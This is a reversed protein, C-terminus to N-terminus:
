LDIDSVKLLYKQIKLLDGSNIMGDKNADAAKMVYQNSIPSVGLLHKQVKLLDGSNIVGDCNIDGYKIVHYTSGMILTGDTPVFDNDNILQVGNQNKVVCYPYNTTITKVKTAPTIYATTGEIKIKEPDVFNGINSNGNGMDVQNRYDPLQSGVFAIYENAVYGIKEEYNWKKNNADHTTARIIKVKSWNGEYGMHLAITDKYLNGLSAGDPTARFTVGWKKMSNIYILAYQSTASLSTPVPCASVPMNNYVPITFTLNNDLIGSEAYIDYLTGAQSAPDRVNTMYQHNYFQSSPYTRAGSSEKLIENGVVDFKYFYKTTQGQAIYEDALAIKAGGILATRPNNWGLERARILGREVAGDGDSAGYNYFNYLGEYGPVTGSIAKPIGNTGRGIEQFITAVIHLPSIKAESAAIMIDDVYNSLYTGSVAKEVVSRSVGASDSLDLFQFVMAEGLFNRPDLYYNVTKSSACYYGPDGVQGCTCLAIPDLLDNKYITNKKCQNEVSLSTIESWDIGTYYAKFNWDPHLYKLYALQIQYSEPFANIGSKIYQTYSSSLAYVDSKIFFVQLLSFIITIILILNLFKFIIKKM